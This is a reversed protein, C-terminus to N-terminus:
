LCTNENHVINLFIDELTLNFKDCLKFALSVPFKRNNNEYLSYRQVSIDLIEAVESQSIGLKNRIEKLNNM